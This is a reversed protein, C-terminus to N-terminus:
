CAGLGLHRDAGAKAITLVPSVRDPAIKGRNRRIPGNQGCQAPKAPNLSATVITGAPQQM